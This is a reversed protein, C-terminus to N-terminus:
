LKKSESPEIKESCWIMGSVFCIMLVYLWLLFVIVASLANYLKETNSFSLYVTFGVLAVAWLTATLLSGSVFRKLAVKYPCAYVNLLLALGFSVAMMFLYTLATAITKRFLYLFAVTAGAVLFVSLASALMVCLLFLSASVRIKWGSKEREYGYIIEGSRRLHYFLSTASYLSTFILFVDAGKQQKEAQSRIYLLIEKVSSFVPMEIIKEIPLDLRGFLLTLWISLPLLSMVLFFVLTGAVTTYKKSALLKYRDWVFEYGRKWDFRRQKKVKKEM